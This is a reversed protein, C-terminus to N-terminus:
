QKLAMHIAKAVAYGVPPAVSNGIQGIAKYVPGRIIWDSPFGQILACDSISLRTHGNEPEFAEAKEITEAVGNGWIGMKAFAAQSSAGNLISTSNRPGTFGSRFTPAYGDVFTDDLGIAERVGITEPLTEERNEFLGLSANAGQRRLNSDGIDKQAWNKLRHTPKPVRFREFPVWDKFGVLFLRKRKQPVGFDPAYLHFKTCLYQKGLGEEIQSLLYPAFRRNGLAPVNEMCFADPQLESVARFFEPLMDRPDNKGQQKGSNSFPQCPPGGHVVLFDSKQLSCISQWNQRRVDGPEGGGLINWNPRNARLTEACIELIDAAYINRYGAREFGIDLGGCGAFLSVCDIPASPLLPMNESNNLRHVRSPNQAVNQEMTRKRAASKKSNSRYWERKADSIEWGAQRGNM